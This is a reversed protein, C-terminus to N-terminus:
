LFTVKSISKFIYFHSLILGVMSIFTLSYCHSIQTSYAMLNFKALPQIIDSYALLQLGKKKKKKVLQSGQALNSSRALRSETMFPCDTIARSAERPKSPNFSICTCLRFSETPEGELLKQKLIRICQKILQKQFTTPLNWKLINKQM